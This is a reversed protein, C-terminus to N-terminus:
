FYYHQNKNDDEEIYIAIDKNIKDYKIYMTKYASEDIQLNQAKNFLYENISNSKYNLKDNKMMWAPYTNCWKTRLKNIEKMDIQEGTKISDIARPLLKIIGFTQNDLIDLIHTVILESTVKLITQKKSTPKYTLPPIRKNVKLENGICDHICSRFTPIDVAELRHIDDLYLCPNKTVLVEGKMVKFSKRDMTQYQIFCQGEQLSKTENLQSQDVIELTWDKSDSKMMSKRVKIYNDNIISQPDISLMGKCGAVCVQYVFPIDMSILLDHLKFYCYNERVFTLKIDIPKSTTLSLDVRGIYTAISQIKELDGLVIRVENVAFAANTSNAKTSALFRFEQKKMQSGSSAFYYYILEKCGFSDLCLGNLFIEKYQNKIEDSRNINIMKNFSDEAKIYGLLELMKM